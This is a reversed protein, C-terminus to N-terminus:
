AYKLHYANGCALYIEDADGDNVVAEGIPWAHDPNLVIDAAAGPNGTRSVEGRYFEVHYPRGAIDAFKIKVFGVTM